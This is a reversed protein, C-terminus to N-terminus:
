AILRWSSDVTGIVKSDAVYAGQMQWEEVAGSTNNRWMLDTRGDGNYDGTGILSWDQPSVTGLGHSEVVTTGDMLWDNIQSDTNQWMLDARGDGNFDGAALFHWSPDIRGIVGISDIGDFPFEPTRSTMTWELVLGDSNQWVVDARNDGTLDGTTVFHWSSDVQAIVGQTQDWEAVLGASNQWLIGDRGYGSFDAMALPRWDQGVTTGMMQSDQVSAGDMSWTDILGASNRWIASAVGNGVRDGTGILSWDPDLVSVGGSAVTEFGHLSTEYIFGGSSRWLLDSYGDGDLDNTTVNPIPAVAVDFSLVSRGYQDQSAADTPPQAGYPLSGSGVPAAVHTGAATGDTFWLGPNGSADYGHFVVGTGALAFDSPALGAPAADSVQLEHTGAASGDTVWLASHGTRDYGTFLVKGHYAIFDQPGRIRGVDLPVANAGTDAPDDSAIARAGAFSGDTVWLAEYGMPDFALVLARQGVAVLPTPLLSAGERPDLQLGRIPRTGETTGDTVWLYRHGDVGLASFLARSGVAMVNAVQPNQQLNSPTLEFSAGIGNLVFLGMAGSIDRMVALAKHGFVTITPTGTVPGTGAVPLLTTGTPTGDTLWLQDAPFYPDGGSTFFVAKAGLSYLPSGISAAPSPLSFQYAHTGDTVFLRPSSDAGVLLSGAPALSSPYLFGPAGFWDTSNLTVLSFAGSSSLFALNWSFHYGSGTMLQFTLKNGYATIPGSVYPPVSSGTGTLTGDTTFLYPGYFFVGRATM